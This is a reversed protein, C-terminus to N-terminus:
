ECVGLIPRFPMKHRSTTMGPALALSVTRQAHALRWSRTWNSTAPLVASNKPRLTDLRNLPISAVRAAASSYCNHFTSRGAMGRKTSETAALVLFSGHGRVRAQLSAGWIHVAREASATRAGGAAHGLLSDLSFTFLALAQSSGYDRLASGGRHVPWPVDLYRHSGSDIREPEELLHTLVLKKQDRFVRQPVQSSM